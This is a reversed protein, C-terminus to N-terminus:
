CGHQTRWQHLNLASLFVSFDGKDKLEVLRYTGDDRLQVVWRKTIKDANRYNHAEAYAATQPYVSPMLAGSKIDMLAKEGFFLGIRDLAGAYFHRPHFVKEEIHTPAFGTEARFKIWAELYPLIAIDVTDMQLDDLDYLATALHVATGRQRAYELAEAPVGSFSDLCSEIVSTVGPVTLGKYSYRHLAEDFQLEEIM